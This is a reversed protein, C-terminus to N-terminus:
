DLLHTHSETHTSTPGCHVVQGHREYEHRGNYRREGGGRSPWGDSRRVGTLIGGRPVECVEVRCGRMGRPEM